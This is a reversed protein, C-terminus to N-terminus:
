SESLRRRVGLIGTPRFLMFLILLLFTAASSWKAGIFWVTLGELLGIVLAGLAPALFRGLGGVICAVAAALVVPFGMTPGAGTAFATLFAALGAFASGAFSVWLRTRPVDIGIVSALTANDAIARGTRGFRTRNLIERLGLFVLGATILQATQFYTLIIPGLKITKEVGPLLIKTDSGFTLALLNVIVIYTGLSSILVVNNSAKRKLLPRYILIEILTGLLGAGLIALLASLGLPLGALSSASYAIYAGFAFVAGHAIHLIGNASYILGFGFAVLFIMGASCLGNALIQPM